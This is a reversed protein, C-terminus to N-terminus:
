DAHDELRDALDAAQNFAAVAGQEHYLTAVEGMQYRSDPGLLTLGRLASIALLKNKLRENEAALRRCEALLEPARRRLENNEKNKKDRRLLSCTRSCYQTAHHRPTFMTRCWRCPRPLVTKM